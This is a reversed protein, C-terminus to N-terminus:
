TQQRSQLRDSLYVPAILRAVSELFSASPGFGAGWILRAKNKGTKLDTCAGLRGAHKHGPESQDGRRFRWFAGSLETLYVTCAAWEFGM